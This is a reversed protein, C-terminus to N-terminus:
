GCTVLVGLRTGGGAQDGPPKEKTLKALFILENNHEHTLYIPVPMGGTDFKMGYPSFM